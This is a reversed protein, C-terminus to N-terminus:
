AEEHWTACLAAVCDRWGTRNKAKAVVTKWTLEIKKLESEATRRWTTKPRGRKRKGDATWFISERTIDHQDKRLVHGIWRWKRRAIEVSIDEQGAMDRLENNSIVKPWRIKFISRLCRNVFVRLKKTLDKRLKWCESGYLLVSKVNSNFIRLKTRTTMYSSTWVPKLIAFVHRAKNIRSTIDEDTGGSTTIISGLYTFTDVDELPEGNVQVSNKNRANIRMIKTKKLNINLGLSTSTTNLKTTKEQIHQHTSSILCLDDAYDLDDLKNGMNWRIGNNQDRTSERMVWDIAVLFLLPSLMCGQKLGSTVPFWETQGKDVMVSCQFGEHLIRIINIIKLPLGYLRLLKWLSERHVSDFAKEFDVFNLYLSSQWEISQEIINRLVFIQDCCSRGPRFGAQEKRLQADVQHKVRDLLVRTFVKSITPLLTIGRWNNCETKDGKKPLKIIIGSKWDSPIKTTRWIDQFLNHMVISTAEIDAKLLEAPIDDVGAAKNDKMKRIAKQIEMLSIEEVSIDLETVNENDIDPPQCPDGRNLVSRFHEAWRKMIDSDKSLINGHHDKVVSSNNTFKGSMMKTIKYLEQINGTRAAEEARCASDQIRKRKDRRASRKVERDKDRYSKSLSEMETNDKCDLIKSRIKKRESILTWTDSTIWEEKVSKRYGLTDTAASTFCDKINDWKGDINNEDNMTELASFRNRLELKFAEKVELQKLKNVAFKRRGQVKRTAKLKLQIKARLLIHDSNIDAGRYTRADIVSRRWRKNIMIYDIQNKTRKDPSVWTYKHIDKHAFITNCVVLGNIECFDLLREGNENLQGIGHAGMCAEKGTNDKGVKANLDGMVIVMDHKPTRHLVSQLQNYFTDKEDDNADNTPSYCQIVSLKIHKSDFRAYLIRDNVPYWEILTKSTEKSMMIAVGSQHDQDKGSYIITESNCTIKGSGTWRAESIGLISIDYQKMEKAIQASRSTEFM